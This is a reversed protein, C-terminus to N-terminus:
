SNPEIYYLGTTMACAEASPMRKLAHAAGWSDSYLVEGTKTNYGIILRMHGGHAQPIEQEKFMGLEVSWMVPVGKNISSEIFRQFHGFAAKGPTAKSEKLSEPDMTNYIDAIDIVKM